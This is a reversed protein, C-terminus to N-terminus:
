LRRNASKVKLFVMKEKMRLKGKEERNGMEQRNEMEQRNGKRRQKKGTM